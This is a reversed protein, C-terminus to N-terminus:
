HTRRKQSLVQQEQLIAAFAPRQRKTSSAVSVCWLYIISRPSKFNGKKKSLTNPSLLCCNCQFTSLGIRTAPQFSTIYLIPKPLLGKLSYLSRGQSAFSPVRGTTCSPWSHLDGWTALWEPRIVNNLCYPSWSSLGRASIQASTWRIFEAEGRVWANRKELVFLSIAPTPTGSEKM